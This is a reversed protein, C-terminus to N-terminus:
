PNEGLVRLTSALVDESARDPSFSSPVQLVHCELHALAEHLIEAKRQFHEAQPVIGAAGLATSLAQSHAHMEVHFNGIMRNVMWERSRPLLRTETGAYRELYIAAEVPAATSVERGSLAVEPRVMTHEPSWRRVLAATRPYRTVYPHVVTTVSHLPRSLAVPVMPKRAGRFMHPYLDRHHPKIFMPKAFGLIQKERSMFAWDDGMFRVGDLRMFKAITSTKGTGGAAPMAIGRGRFDITAAHFMAVGARVVLIDILPVVSTLLEGSGHLGFGDGQAVVQIGASPWTISEDTYTLTTELDAADRIDEFRPSVDLLPGPGAAGARFCHFMDRLQPRTPADASVRMGVRGHIDFALSGEHSGTPATGGPLGTGVASM